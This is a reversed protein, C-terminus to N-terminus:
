WIWEVLVAETGAIPALHRFHGNFYVLGEKAKADTATGFHAVLLDCLFLTHTSQAIRESVRAVFAASADILVPVGLLESWAGEAFREEGHVGPTMGAFRKALSVQNWSLVNISLRGESDILDHAGVTKNICVLLRPPNVTVSCVATATLGGRQGQPGSAIICVAGALSRMGRRFVVGDVLPENGIDTPHPMVALDPGSM